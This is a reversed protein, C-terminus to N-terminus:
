GSDAVAVDGSHFFRSIRSWLYVQTLARGPEPDLADVPPVPKEPYAQSTELLEILRGIM